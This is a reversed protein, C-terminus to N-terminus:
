VGEGPGIPAPGFISSELLEWVGWGIVAGAVPAVIYVWLHSLDGGVLAPGISRAPNPM